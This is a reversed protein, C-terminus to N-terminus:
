SARWMATLTALYLGIISHTLSLMCTHLPLSNCIKLTIGVFGRPNGHHLLQSLTLLYPSWCCAWNVLLLWSAFSSEWKGVDGPKGKYQTHWSKALLNPCMDDPEWPPMIGKRFIFWYSSKEGKCRIWLDVILRLSSTTMNCVINGSKGKRGKWNGMWIQGNELGNLRM